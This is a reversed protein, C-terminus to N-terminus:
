VPICNSVTRVRGSSALGAKPGHTGHSRSYQHPVCTSMPPSRSYFISYFVSNEFFFADFTEVGLNHIPPSHRPSTVKKREVKASGPGDRIRALLQWRPPRSAKASACTGNTLLRHSTSGSPVVATDGYQDSRTEPPLLTHGSLDDVSTLDSELIVLSSGDDYTVLVTRVGDVSTVERITGDRPDAGPMESRVRRGFIPQDPSETCHLEVLSTGYDTNASPFLKVPLNTFTDFVVITGDDGALPDEFLKSLADPLSTSADCGGQGSLLDHRRALALPRNTLDPDFRVHLSSVCTLDSVLRVKFGLTGDAVGVYVGIRSKPQLQSAKSNPSLVWATAFLPVTLLSIDPLFLTLTM